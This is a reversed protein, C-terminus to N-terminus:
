DVKATLPLFKTYYKFICNVSVNSVPYQYVKYSLRNLLFFNIEGHMHSSNFEKTIKSSVEDTAVIHYFLRYCM